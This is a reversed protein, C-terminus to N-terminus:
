NEVNKANNLCQLAIQNSKDQVSHWASDHRQNIEKCIDQQRKRNSLEKNRQQEKGFNEPLACRKQIKKLMGPNDKYKNM